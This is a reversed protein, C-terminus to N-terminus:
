WHLKNVSRIVIAKKWKIFLEFVRKRVVSLNVPQNIVRIYVWTREYFKMLFVLGNTHCSNYLYLNTYLSSTLRYCKNYLNCTHWYRQFYVCIWKYYSTHLWLLKKSLQHVRPVWTWDWCNVYIGETCEYTVSCHMVHEYQLVLYICTDHRWSLVLKVDM